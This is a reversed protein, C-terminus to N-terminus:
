IMKKAFKSTDTGPSGKLDWKTGYDSCDVEAKRRHSYIEPFYSM